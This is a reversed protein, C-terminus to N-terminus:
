RPLCNGAGASGSDPCQFDAVFLRRGQHEQFLGKVHTLTQTTLKVDQPPLWMGEVAASTLPHPYLLQLLVVRNAAM